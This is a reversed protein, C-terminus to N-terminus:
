LGTTKELAEPYREGIIKIQASAEEMEQLEETTFEINHPVM